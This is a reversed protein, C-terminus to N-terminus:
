KGEEQEYMTDLLKSNMGFYWFIPLVCFQLIGCEFTKDRSIPLAMRQDM